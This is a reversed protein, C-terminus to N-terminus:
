QMGLVDPMIWNHIKLAKDFTGRILSLYRTVLTFFKSHSMMATDGLTM